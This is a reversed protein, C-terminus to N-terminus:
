KRSDVVHIHALTLYEALADEKDAPIMIRGEPTDVGLILDYEGPIVDHPVYIGRKEILCEEMDWQNTAIGGYRVPGDLGPLLTDASLLHLFIKYNAPIQASRCIQLQVNLIDGPLLNTTNLAFKKFWFPGLEGELTQWHWSDMAPVGYSVLEYGNFWQSDFRYFQENLWWELEKGSYDPQIHVHDAMLSLKQGKTNELIDDFATLQHPSYWYHIFDGKLLGEFFYIHFENSVTVLTYPKQKEARVWTAINRATENSLGPYAVTSRTGAVMIAIVAPILPLLILFSFQRSIRWKWILITGVLCFFLFIGIGIQAHWSGAKDVWLWLLDLDNVHWNQLLMWPPSLTIHRFLLGVNNEPQSNMAFFPAYGKWWNNTAYASQVIISTSLLILIAARGPWRRVRDWLSALSLLVIPLGPVLLRPGWSEGGYWTSYYSTAGLLALFSLIIAAALYRHERWFLYSAPVLLISIPMYFILGKIPSALQGYVRQLILWFDSYTIMSPVWNRGTRWWYLIPFSIILCLSLSIWIVIIPKQWTTEKNDLVILSLFPVSFIVNIKVLVSLCIILLSLAALWGSKGRQQWTILGYIGLLWLFGVLPERYFSLAYPWGLSGLGYAIAAIAAGSSSYGLKQACLFILTATMAVLLPNLLMVTYINNLSASRQAFWYLTTALLPYGVEHKGVHNHYAAFNIQPVERSGTQVISETMSYLNLEDISTFQGKFTILFVILLLSFIMMSNRSSDGVAITKLIKKVSQTNSLKFM